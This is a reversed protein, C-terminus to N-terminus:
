IEGLRTALGFVGYSQNGFGPKLLYSM